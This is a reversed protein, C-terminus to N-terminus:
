NEIPAKELREIVIMEITGKTPKLKLGLQDEVAQFIPVGSGPDAATNTPVGNAGPAVVLWSLTLAYTGKLGTADLVPRDVQGSLYNAVNKMIQGRFQMRGRGNLIQMGTGGPVNPFGDRDVAPGPPPPPAPATVEQLKPGGKAIVLEYVPMERSERHAKMKFREELLGQLMLRYEDRTARLPLKAIVDFKASRAWAPADLQYLFVGYAHTLLAELSCNVCSWREPDSTGPGGAVRPAVSAQSPKVSAVEFAPQAFASFCTLISPILRRVTM